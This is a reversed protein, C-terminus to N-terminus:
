KTKPGECPNVSLDWGITIENVEVNWFLQLGARDYKEDCNFQGNIVYMQGERQTM